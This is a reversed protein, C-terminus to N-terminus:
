CGHRVPQRASRKEGRVVLSDEHMSVDVDEAKVDPLEVNIMTLYITTQM